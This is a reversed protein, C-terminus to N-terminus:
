QGLALRRWGEGLPQHSAAVVAGGDARHGAIAQSLRKAGDADLGNLPEDLLWL